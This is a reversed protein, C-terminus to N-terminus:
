ADGTAARAREGIRRVAAPIAAAFAAAAQFVRDDPATEVDLALVAAGSAGFQALIGKARHAHRRVASADSAATAARLADASEGLDAAFSSLAAAFADRGMLEVLEGLMDEDVALAPDTGDARVDM